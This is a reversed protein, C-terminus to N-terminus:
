KILQNLSYRWLKIDYWGCGKCGKEADKGNKPVDDPWNEDGEYYYDIGYIKGRKGTQYCTRCVERKQQNRQNSMLQFDNLIQKNSLRNINNRKTTTDWRIEPFKHDPLLGEKKMAKAEYEDFYRLLSLIKDRTEKTWTEYGTMGGRPLPLLLLHTCNRGLVKDYMKTNTALTYGLEKIDQIRRAWNPNKPLDTEVSHWKFDSILVDFFEKTVTAQSKSKWFKAQELKWKKWNKPNCKKRVNKLYQMIEEESKDTFDTGTRRYEIPIDWNFVENGYKFEVNQYTESAKQHYRKEGLKIM